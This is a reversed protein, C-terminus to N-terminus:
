FILNEIEEARIQFPLNTILAIENDSPLVSSIIRTDTYEKIKLEEVIEPHNEEIKVLRPSLRVPEDQKTM